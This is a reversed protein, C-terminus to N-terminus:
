IGRKTNWNPIFGRRNQKSMLDAINRAHSDLMGKFDMEKNATVNYTPSHTFSGGGINTNGSLFDRFPTASKAPVIMEDKHINALGDNAVSMTGTDFSPLKLGALKAMGSIIGVEAAVGLVPGVVPIAFIAAIMSQMATFLATFGTVISSFMASLGAFAGAKQTAVQTATSGAVIGQKAAEVTTTAPIEAHKKTIFDIATDAWIKTYHQLITDGISNMVSSFSATGKIIGQFASDLSGKMRSALDDWNKSMDKTIKHDSQLRNNIHNAYLVDIKSQITNEEDANGAAAMKQAVLGKFATEYRINEHDQMIKDYQVQTMTYNDLSEKALEEDYALTTDSIKNAQDAADRKIKIKLETASKEAEIEKLQADAYEKSEGGYVRKIEEAEEQAYRIKNEAAELATKSGQAVYLKDFAEKTALKNKEISLEEAALKKAAEEAKKAEEASHDKAGAGGGAGKEPIVLPAGAGAPAGGGTVPVGGIGISSMASQAAEKIGGWAAIGVANVGTLVASAVGGMENWDRTWANKTQSTGAIVLAMGEGINGNLAAFAGQLVKGIGGALEKIHEWLASFGNAILTITSKTIDGIGNFNTYWATALLAVAVGIAVVAGLLLSLGASMAAEGTAALFCGNTFLATAATAISVAASVAEVVAAVTVTIAAWAAKATTIAYVGVTYTAYLAIGTGVIELVTTLTSMLEQHAEIWTKIASVANNINSPINAIAMGFNALAPLVVNGINVALATFILNIDRQAQAYAAMTAKQKDGVVLGYREATDAAEKMGESSLKIFKAVDIHTRKFIEMAAVNRSTGAETNKLVDATEMLLDQTNRFSGDANRTEIGLTQFGKAGSALQRTMANAAGLYDETTIGAHELAVNLVSADQSTIGLQDGLKKVEGYFEKTTSVASGFLAAGAMIGSIKGAISMLGSMSGELSSFVNKLGDGMSSASGHLQAFTGQLKSSSSDMGNIATKFSNQMDNSAKNISSTLTNIAPQVQSYDLEVGVTLKEDAV